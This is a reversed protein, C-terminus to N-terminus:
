VGPFFRRIIEEKDFSNNKKLVANSIAEKAIYMGAATTGAAIIGLASKGINKLSDEIYKKGPNIESDTLSRLERELRLRSIRDNLEADTLSGRYKYDRRKKMMSNKHKKRRKGEATYTGDENQYRRVGWKMGLVGSHTLENYM